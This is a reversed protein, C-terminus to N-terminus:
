SRIKFDFKNFKTATSACEAWLENRLDKEVGSDNLMARVRGWLTAFSREVQGNQEPTSPPTFEVEVDLGEAELKSRLSVNEKANDMRLFRVNLPNKMKLVKIFKIMETVMEGKRKTFISWKMKSNQDEILIWINRKGLSEQKIYSIDMLLREGPTKSVSDSVKKINKKRIKALM